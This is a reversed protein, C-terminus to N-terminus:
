RILRSFSLTKTEGTTLYFSMKERGEVIVKSLVEGCILDSFEKLRVFTEITTEINAL